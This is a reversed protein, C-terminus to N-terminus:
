SQWRVVQELLFTRTLSHITYRSERLGSRHDVLNIRVLTELGDHLATEELGSVVAIFDLDAGEPPVLPMALFVRREDETLADWARRYIFTYLQEVTRGHASRLDTLVTQLAHRHTQGVVLRLALPNGGVTDYIARLDHPEADALVPLNRLTAEYRVLALADSESLAPVAQPFIQSLGDLRERSTLLIKGPNALRQLAPVLVNLDQVTELNDVVILHPEEKMKAQLVALAKEVTFPSPLAFGLLQDALEEILTNSSHPSANTPLITAGPHFRHRRATIWGIQPFAERELATRVIADALATKGVGGIGHLLFIWPPGPAMLRELLAELHREVGFLQEYSPLELRREMRALHTAAAQKEDEHLLAALTDLAESQRRYVTAESLNLRHAVGSADLRDLFHLRLVQSGEPNHRALQDLLDLVLQKVAQDQSLGQNLTGRLIHLRALPSDIRITGSGCRTTSNRAFNNWHTRTQRCPLTRDASTPKPSQSLM